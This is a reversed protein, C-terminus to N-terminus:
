QNTEVYKQPDFDWEYQKEAGEGKNTDPKILREFEEKARL